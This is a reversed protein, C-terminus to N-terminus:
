RLDYKKSIIDRSTSIFCICPYWHSMTTFSYWNNGFIGGYDMEISSVTYLKGYEFSSRLERKLNNISRYPKSLNGVGIYKVVEGKEAIIHQM